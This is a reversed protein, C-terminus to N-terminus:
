RITDRGVRTAVIRCGNVRVASAADSAETENDYLTFLTSGSGTMRVPRGVQHEVDARLTALEPRLAFAPAELDNVLLPLLERANMESWAELDPRALTADDAVARLADLRAYCAATSVWFPPLVLLAGVVKPSAVKEVMEGRGACWASPADLFFAVDSGVKAALANLLGPRGGRRPRGAWLHELAVLTAAANGSGGGLGGGAPVRKELIAKVRVDAGVEDLWVCAAKVVLNRGDAPLAPDDCSLAVREALAAGGAVRPAGAGGDGAAVVEVWLRDALGITVMWSGLPHFGDRSPGGVRLHLNLKAPSHWWRGELDPKRESAALTDADAPLDLKPADRTM